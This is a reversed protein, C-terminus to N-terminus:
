AFQHGNSHMTRHRVPCDPTGVSMVTKSSKFSSEFSEKAGRPSYFPCKPAEVLVLAYWSCV